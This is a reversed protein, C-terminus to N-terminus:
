TKENCKELIEGVTADDPLENEECFQEISTLILEFEIQEKMYRCVQTDIETMIGHATM